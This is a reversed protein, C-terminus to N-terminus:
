ESNEDYEGMHMRIFYKFHPRSREYFTKLHSIGIWACAASWLDPKKTVALFTMFGGYSGGFIGINKNDVYSLSKLHEAGKAVDELDKGGWDMLNMDQFKRGYGTSG